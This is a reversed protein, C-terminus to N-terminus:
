WTVGPHSRYLSQMEALLPGLHETHFGTRGGTRQYPDEPAALTADALVRNVTSDFEARVSVLDAHPGSAALLYDDLDVEFLDDVFPWMTHVAVQMRDHSEATGDGLKSMWTSSWQLHYRAEKEAKAAIGPFSEDSGLALARYFPVQFADVFFQRAITHAFDGNPQEVLVANRFSREDRGLALAVEDEFTDDMTLVHRYLATAQGLHDLSLNAVAIDEELEPMWSVLEGLRQALVLNDDAIQLLFTVLASKTTTV